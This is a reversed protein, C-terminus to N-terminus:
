IRLSGDLLDKEFICIETGPLMIVWDCRSAMGWAFVVDPFASAKTWDDLFPLKNVVRHFNYRLRIGLSQYLLGYVHISLTLLSRQLLLRRCVDDVKLELFLERLTSTGFSLKVSHITVLIKGWRRM